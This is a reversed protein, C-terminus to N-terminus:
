LPPQAKNEDKSKREREFRGRKERSLEACKEVLKTITGPPLNRETLPIKKKM